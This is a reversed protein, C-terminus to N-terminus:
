GGRLTRRDCRFRPDERRAWPPWPERPPRRRTPRGSASSRAKPTWSIPSGAWGRSPRRRCRSGAVLAVAKNAYEGVDEASVYNAFPHQPNQKKILMGNLGPRVPTGTEDVPVSNVMNIVSEPGGWPQIDWGFLSRYFETARDMDDDPIEFHCMTRDMRTGGFSSPLFAEPISFPPADGSFMRITLARSLRM